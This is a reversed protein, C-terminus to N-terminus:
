EIESSETDNDESTEKYTKKLRNSLHFKIGTKPPIAFINGTRPNRGKRAAMKRIKFVGLFNMRVHKEEQLKTTIVDLLENTVEKVVYKPLRTKVSVEEILDTTTVTDQM